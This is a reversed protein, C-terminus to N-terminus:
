NVITNIIEGVSNKRINGIARCPYDEFFMSYCDSIHGDHSIRIAQVFANDWPLYNFYITNGNFSYKTFIVGYEDIYLNDKNIIKENVLKEMLRSSPPSYDNKVYINLGDYQGFGILDGRVLKEIERLIDEDAVYLEDDKDLTVYPSFLLNKIGIKYATDVVDAICHLNLRNITFSIFVKKFLDYRSLLKLNAMLKSYTGNGRIADHVEENGDLSIDIYDPNIKNLEEIKEEDFLLGNTVVGFRLTPKEERQGKFYMLLDKTNQWNLLPEKGVNGFTLGGMEICEDFVGRWDEISLSDKGNEYGVYCHRCQLNCRNNIFYSVELPYSHMQQICNLRLDKASIPEYNQTIGGNSGSWGIAM